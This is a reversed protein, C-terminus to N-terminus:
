KKRVVVNSRFEHRCHKQVTGDDNWYGGTRNFVDYGVVTSIIQIDERTYMRDLGIMKVCFPRSTPLLEAGDVEPRKEYSYRVEFKALAKKATKAINIADSILSTEENDNFEAKHSTIKSFNSSHEGFSEFVMAVEEESSFGIKASTTTDPEEKGLFAEIEDDTFGYGSRLLVAAQKWSLKGKGFRGVVSMINQRQRGTLNTLVDNVSTAAPPAPQKQEIHSSMQSEVAKGVQVPGDPYKETDIGIQEMLWSKPVGQLLLSDSFELGIPQLSELEFETGIKNLAALYNFVEEINKQKSSVYTNKFIEYATRLETASGLKGPTQIGFLLPHTVSHAVFIKSDILNVVATFDEKTLDSSGLDQILPAAEGPKVFAIVVKEGASGGHENKFQNTVERKAEKSPPAGNMFTILKSASFGTKANTLLAKSLEIDSEIYNCSAWWEPLPYTSVGPRYEKYFFITKEKIAPNFARYPTPKEIRDSWDEKYWFMTNSKDSRIKAFPIHYFTWKTGLMNPIMELYCGGHAEIDIICKKATPNASAIFSKSLPTETKTKFGLGYVYKAKGNVVAGHTPSKDYLKQLYEPYKNDEGFKTFKGIRDEKFVPKEADMFKLTVIEYKGENDAM